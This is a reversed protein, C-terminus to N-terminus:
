SGGVELQVDLLARHELREVQRESDNEPGEADLAVADRPAALCRVSTRRGHFRPTIRERSCRLESQLDAADGLSRSVAGNAGGAADDALRADDGRDDLGGLLEEVLPVQVSRLEGRHEREGLLRAGSECLLLPDLDLPLLDPRDLRDEEVLREEAEALSAIRSTVSM